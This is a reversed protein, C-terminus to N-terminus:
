ADDDFVGTAGILVSPQSASWDIECIGTRKPDSALDVGATLVDEAEWRPGGPEYDGSLWRILTDAGKVYTQITSPSLQKPKCSGSSVSYNTECRRPTGVNNWTRRPLASPGSPDLAEM